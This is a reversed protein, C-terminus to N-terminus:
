DPRDFHRFGRWLITLMVAEAIMPQAATPTVGDLALSVLRGFLATGLLLMPVVLARAQGSWAGVIAFVGVGIFFGPFDARLTALGQTGLPALHFAPALKDPALLFGLGLALNFLGVLGIVGRLITRMMTGGVIAAQHSVARCQM